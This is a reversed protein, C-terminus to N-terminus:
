GKKQAYNQFVDMSNMNLHIHKDNVSVLMTRVPPLAQIQFDLRAQPSGPPIEPLRHLFDASLLVPHGGRDQYQPIAADISSNVTEALKGFVEKGPCPVDIPLVFAGYILESNPSKPSSLRATRLEASENQKDLFSEVACQLSSFQGFEPAPNLVVSIELGLYQVPQSAAKELWPIQNFYPALHFGLVIIARRGSAVKFRMLQEVLWPHGEYKLLGKPTGMRSSRGGALLILPFDGIEKAM